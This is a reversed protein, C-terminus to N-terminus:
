IYSETVIGDPAIWRKLDYPSLANRSVRAMYLQHKNPGLIVNDLNITQRNYLADIYDDFQLHKHITGRCVGKARMVDNEGETRYSYVKSRDAIFETMRKGFLEDKFMGPVKKYRSSHLPHSKPYDSTDLHDDRISM